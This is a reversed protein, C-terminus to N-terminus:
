KRRLMANDGLGDTFWRGDCVDYDDMSLPHVLAVVEAEESVQADLHHRLLRRFSRKRDSSAGCKAVPKRYSRSMQIEGQEQVEHADRSPTEGQRDVYV